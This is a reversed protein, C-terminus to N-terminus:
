WVLLGVFANENGAFVKASIIAITLGISYRCATNQTPRSFAQTESRMCRMGRRNAQCGLPRERDRWSARSCSFPHGDMNQIFQPFWTELSEMNQGMHPCGM